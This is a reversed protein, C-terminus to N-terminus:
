EHIQGALHNGWEKFNAAGNSGPLDEVLAAVIRAYGHYQKSPSDDNGTNEGFDYIIAPATRYSTVAHAIAAQLEDGFSVKKNRKKTEVQSFYGADCAVVADPSDLLLVLDDRAKGTRTANNGFEEIALRVAEMRLDVMDLVLGESCSWLQLRPAICKALVPPNMSSLQAGAACRADMTPFYSAPNQKSKSASPRIADCHLLAYVILPLTKLLEHGQGLLVHEASLEGERDLLRENAYFSLATNDGNSQQLGHEAEKRQIEEQVEASQYACVLLSKLWDEGITQVMALGDRLLTLTLKHFLVAAIVEPDISSYLTEVNDTLPARAHAIRMQRVTLYDGPHEPDKVITTYAFCTQLVPKWAIEGMGDVKLTHKAKKDKIDLDITVSTFPDCTGFRWLNGSEDEASAPGMIGGSSYLPALQPGKDVAEVPARDVIFSSSLRLRLEGGFAMPQHRIELDDLSQNEGEEGYCGWPVRAFVEKKLRDIDPSETIPTDYGEHLPFVLPGPAGSRDALGRLFPLGVDLEASDDYYGDTEQQKVLVFIDVGLAAEACQTGLESFYSEVHEPARYYDLLSSPTMDTDQVAASASSGNATPMGIEEDFSSSAVTPTTSADDGFGTGSINRQVAGGFGGLGISTRPLNKRTLPRWDDGRLDTPCSALFTMIKGGAYYIEDEFDQHTNDPSPHAGPHRARDMYDLITEIATGLPMSMTYASQTTAHASPDYDVLSRIAAHINPKHLSDAPVLAMRDLIGGGGGSAAGTLFQQSDNNGGGGGGSMAEEAEEEEDAYQVFNLIHPVPSTLDVYSFNTATEESASSPVTAALLIGVHVHPPIDELIQLLLHAM